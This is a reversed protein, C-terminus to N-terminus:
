GCGVTQGASGSGDEFITRGCKQCDLYFQGAKSLKPSVDFKTGEGTGFRHPQARFARELTTQMRSGVSM